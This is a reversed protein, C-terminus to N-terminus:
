ALRQKGAKKRRVFRVAGPVAVISLLSLVGPEPAAATAAIQRAIVGYGTANPHFNPSGGPLPTPDAIYTYQTESGVFPTYIDVFKAGFGTAVGRLLANTSLTLQTSLPFSPNGGSLPNGAGLGAFPDAYGVVLIQANPAGTVPSALSTLLSIYRNQLNLFQSQLVAQQQVANLSLFASQGFLALIDNGGMQITIYDVTGGSTKIQALTNQLATNQAAGPLPAGLGSFQPFPIDVYNDNRAQERLPADILGDPYPAQGAFVTPAGTFFSTSTEGPIALNTVTPRTGGFQSALYDAFPAVYGQDGTSSAAAATTYGFAYSDGLAIYNRGQARAAPAAALFSTVITVLTLSLFLSRRTFM